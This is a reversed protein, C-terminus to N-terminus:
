LRFTALIALVESQCLVQLQDFMWMEVKLRKRILAMQHAGYKATLYKERKAGGGPAGPCFYVGKNPSIQDPKLSKHTKQKMSKMSISQDCNNINDPDQGENM